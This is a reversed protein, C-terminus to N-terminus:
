TISSLLAKFLEDSAKTVRRNQRYKKVAADNRESSKEVTVSEPPKYSRVAKPDTKKSISKSMSSTKYSGTSGALLPNIATGIQM